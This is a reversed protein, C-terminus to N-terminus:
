PAPTSTEYGFETLTTSLDKLYGTRVTRGSQILYFMYFKKVLWVRDVPNSAFKYRVQETGGCACKEYQEFGRQSLLEEPTM